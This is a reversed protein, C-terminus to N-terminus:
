RPLRSASLAAGVRNAQVIQEPEELNRHPDSADPATEPGDASCRDVRRLATPRNLVLWMINAQCTGLPSQNPRTNGIEPAKFTM